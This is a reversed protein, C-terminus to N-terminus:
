TADDAAARDPSEAPAAAFFYASTGPVRWGDASAPDVAGPGGYRADDSSWVLRWRGGDVPALLPEPAPEYDFDTGLNVMLLRDDGDEGFWRLVFAAPGLVAGDIRDRRQAAIVADERRLRLLDSHLRYADAHREREGLDLRSRDLTAPDDPHPVRAQSEPEAYSPFQALFQKRGRRVAHVLDGEHDAFFFFPSAAQFEQGMFLLPTEPGLLLLATMARVAGPNALHHLRAGRPDNAVQDHNQLYFVFAHAPEDTVRSGRAKKQWVYRQGQYLFGRKVASVLEQASGRHDTYYAERRGTLAVRVSHHFDDTWLADLGHGGRDLPALCRVDQPENEGILVISREGAAARARRSLEALVHVPGGDHISQTADLRLGDLHYEAIWYCANELFYDRVAASGPGDFNIADGWENDYRDTFYDDSFERLCCGAPGLHNYVVDLLVGIGLAHARDVFRRLADPDGYVHCPAYIEVGDYGWNFRGPFEALPMLEVLTIGLRALEDLERAAADLTGDPTFAGVHLEYIVQGPMTAGRWDADQWPYADPDVVMSPGFPGEPQFRSCPDPYAEGGDLRYRYRTGPGAERVIGTFYGNGDRALPVIRPADTAATTTADTAVGRPGSDAATEGRAAASELVVDVRARKPAWVRFTVGEPGVNAGVALRWAPV